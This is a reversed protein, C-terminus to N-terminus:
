VRHENLHVINYRPQQKLFEKIEDLTLDADELQLAAEELSLKGDVYDFLTKIDSAMTEAASM